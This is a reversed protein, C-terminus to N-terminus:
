IAPLVPQATYREIANRVDLLSLSDTDELHLRAEFAEMLFHTLRLAERPLPIIAESLREELDFVDPTSYADLSDVLGGSAVHVRKRLMEALLPPTWKLSVCDVDTYLDSFYKDLSQERTIPFFSKLFVKDKAFQQQNLFLAEVLTFASQLDQSTEPFADIGDMLIFISRFHFVSLILNKFYEWQEEVSTPFDPSALLATRMAAVLRRSITAPPPDTINGRWGLPELVVVPCYDEELLDLYFSLPAQLGPNKILL